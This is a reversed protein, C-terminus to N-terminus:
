RSAATKQALEQFEEYDRIYEAEDYRGSSVVYYASDAAFDTLDHWVMPPLYLGFRPDELAFSHRRSGDEVSVEFGGNLCFVLQEIRRHAHGGRRAGAPVGYVHYVRAIAFPVQREGEAFALNGLPNEAVPLEILKCQDVGV